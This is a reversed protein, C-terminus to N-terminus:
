LTEDIKALTPKKFQVKAGIQEVSQIMGVIIDKWFPRGVMKAPVFTVTFSQNSSEVKVSNFCDGFKYHEEYRNHGAIGISTYVKDDHTLESVLEKAQQLTGEESDASVIITVLNSQM